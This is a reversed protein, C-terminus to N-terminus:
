HVVQIPGSPHRSVRTTRCERANRAPVWDAIMVWGFWHSISVTRKMRVSDSIAATAATSCITGNVTPLAWSGRGSVRDSDTGM